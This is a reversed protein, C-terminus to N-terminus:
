ESHILFANANEKERILVYDKELFDEASLTITAKILIKDPTISKTNTINFDAAQYTNILHSPYTPNQLLLKRRELLEGGILKKLAVVDGIKLADFYRTLISKAEFQSTDTDAASFVVAPTASLAFIILFRHVLKM